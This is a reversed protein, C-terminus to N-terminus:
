CDVGGGEGEEGGGEGEEGSVKGGEGGEGLVGLVDGVLFVGGAVGDKLRYRDGLWGDGADTAVADTAAAGAFSITLLIAPTIPTSSISISDSGSGSGSGCGSGGLLILM